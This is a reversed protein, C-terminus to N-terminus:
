ELCQLGAVELLQHLSDVATAVFSRKLQNAHEACEQCAHLRPGLAAAEQGLGRKRGGGQGRGVRRGPYGSRRVAIAAKAVGERALFKIPMSVERMMM